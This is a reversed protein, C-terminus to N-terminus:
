FFLQTIQVAIMDLVFILLSSVVVASHAAKGVGLTGKEAHYGKYCGVIGIAFGFFFSKTTASIIDVFMIAELAQVFFLRLSITDGINMGVYSGMLAVFDTYFVLLPIMTTTALVRTVVTYNYAKAGSVSMADLQETVKMSGLEAGIGSGIKGSCILGTLVPGIERIISLSVMAPIMSTAGFEAMTPKAQVTLVFGIIFGSIGILGLSQYGLRYCQRALEGAEFPPKFVESFFKASFRGLAGVSEFFAALKDPILFKM